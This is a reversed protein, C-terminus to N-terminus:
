WAKCSGLIGLLRDESSGHVLRERRERRVRPPDGPDRGHSLVDFCKLGRKADKLCKAEEDKDNGYQEAHMRLTTAANQTM